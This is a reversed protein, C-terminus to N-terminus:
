DLKDEVTNDIVRGVMNEEGDETGRVIGNAGDPTDIVAGPIFVTSQAVREGSDDGDGRTHHEHMVIVGLGPV